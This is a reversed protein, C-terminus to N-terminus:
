ARQRGSVIRKIVAGVAVVGILVLKWGKVLLLGLAKFFGAKALAVGAILGAFGGTTRM